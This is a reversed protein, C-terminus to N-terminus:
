DNKYYISNIQPFALPSELNLNVVGSNQKGNVNAWVMFQWKELQPEKNYLAVEFKDETFTGQFNIQILVTLNRVWDHTVFFIELIANLSTQMASSVIKQTTLGM